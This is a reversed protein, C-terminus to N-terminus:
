DTRARSSEGRDTAPLARWGRDGRIPRPARSEGASVVRRSHPSASSLTIAPAQTSRSGWCSDCVPGRTRSDCSRFVPRERLQLARLWSSPMTLGRAQLCLVARPRQKSGKPPKRTRRVQVLAAGLCDSFEGGPRSMGSYLRCRQADIAACALWQRMCPRKSAPSWPSKM